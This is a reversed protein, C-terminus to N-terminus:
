VGGPNGEERWLFGKITTSGADGAMGVAASRCFVVPANGEGVIATPSPHHQPRYCGTGLPQPSMARRVETGWEGINRISAILM